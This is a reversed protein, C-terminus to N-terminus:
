STTGANVFELVRIYIDTGHCESQGLPNIQRRLELFQAPSLCEPIEPVQVESEDDADIFPIPGNGDIGYTAM